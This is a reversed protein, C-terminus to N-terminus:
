IPCRSRRTCHQQFRVVAAGDLCYSTCYQKSGPPYASRRSEWCRSQQRGPRPSLRVSSGKIEVLIVAQDTVLLHCVSVGPRSACPHVYCSVHSDFGQRAVDQCLTPGPAQRHVDSLADILCAGRRGSGSSSATNRKWHASSSATLTASSARPIRARLAIRPRLFPASLLRVGSAIVHHLRECTRGRTAAQQVSCCVIV